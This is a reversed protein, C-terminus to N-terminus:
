TNYIGGQDTTVEQTATDSFVNVTSQASIEVIYTTFADLGSFSTSTVTIGPSTRVESNDANKKLVVKYDKIAFDAPTAANWTMSFSSITLSSHSLGTPKSPKATFLWTYNLISFLFIALVVTFNFMLCFAKHSLSTPVHASSTSVKIAAYSSVGSGSM